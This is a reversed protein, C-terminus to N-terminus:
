TVARGNSLLPIKNRNVGVRAATDAASVLYRYLGQIPIFYEPRLAQVLQTIDGKAPRMKYLTHEDFERTNEVQMAIIDMVDTAYVEFGNIPPAINLFLDTTRLHLIADQNSAIRRLRVYLREVTAGIIVLGDKDEVIEKLDSVVDCYNPANISKLYDQYEKASRGYIFVKRKSELAIKIAEQLAFVDEDYCALLIRGQHKFFPQILETIKSKNAASDVFNAKGCDLFLAKPNKDRLVKKKIVELNTESFSSGVFCNLIFTFDGQSTYFNIGIQQPLSGAVPFTTVSIKGFRMFSGIERLDYESPLINYKELRSKIAKCNFPTSYIPM